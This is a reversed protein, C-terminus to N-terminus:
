ATEQVHREKQANKEILEDTATEITGELCQMFMKKDLGPQIAPLIRVTICGPYKVISRRSWLTGANHAVPVIPVSLAQYLRAIGTKYPRKEGVATRTGEPFILICNGRAVHALADHTMKHLASTGRARDIVLVGQKKFYLNLLPIRMLEKKIVFIIGPFVGGLAITEWASQHKCAVLYPPPPLHEMGEIHVTINLIRHMGVRLVRDWARSGRFKHKDGWWLTPLYVILVGLTAIVLYINFAISRLYIMGM